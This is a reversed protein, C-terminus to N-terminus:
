VWYPVRSRFQKLAFLAAGWGVVTIAGVIAWHFGAVSQGFMPGRVIELYHFTPIAEVLKTRAGGGHRRLITTNWIVPTLLFLVLTVSGLIPAIDRFRTSLIGFVISVWAANLVLLALAPFALLVSWGLHRWTGCAVMVVAYIALNHAFFLLQRWVLRYVHVSLASPLQKILGENAIFVESGELISASILGWIIFGVTVYPLFEKAPEAWLASYFVGMVLAQVGTAITIWFPGLVSRRYRQKIDQWGLSLWLERQRFGERLDRVARTM